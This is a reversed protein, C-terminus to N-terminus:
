WINMEVCKGDGSGAVEVDRVEWVAEGAVVAANFSNSVRRFRANTLLLEAM